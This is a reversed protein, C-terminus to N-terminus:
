KVSIKVTVMRGALYGHLTTGKLLIIPVQIFLINVLFIDFPFYLWFLLTSFSITYLITHILQNKLSYKRKWYTKMFIMGVSRDENFAILILKYIFFLSIFIFKKILISNNLFLFPMFFISVFVVNILSSLGKEFINTERM